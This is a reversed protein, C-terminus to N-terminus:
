AFLEEVLLYSAMVGGMVQAGASGNFTTTGAASGGARLKFTTASVTAALMIHVITMVTIFNQSVIPAIAKLANAVADQFLAATMGNNGAANNAASSVSSIKLLNLASMPTITVSMYQDGETNQPITNDAPIITGATAVAGTQTLQQQIADGTRRVGPGMVQLVTPANSWNGATGGTQIEIYGIIRVPVSARGTTSYVVGASDAAGGGGETTTTLVGSENVAFLGTPAAVTGLLSCWACLEVAGANDIAGLYVRRTESASFGLTSGASIALSLAATVERVNPTGTTLTASRFGIRVPSGPSPDNGLADKLAFTLVNGAVSATFGINELLSASNKRVERGVTYFATGNCVLECSEGPLLALLTTGDITESANGDFIILGTSDNRYRCWWGDGLTAAATLTQTFAASARFSRGYDAVGLITNSARTLVLTEALTDRIIWAANAANRRKVLLNTTDAWNEYAFTTAPAAAGSNDSVVAALANNADGRFAAGSQNALDYDHQAM